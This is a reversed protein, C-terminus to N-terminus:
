KGKWDPLLGPIWPAGAEHMAEQLRRVDTDILTRLRALTGKFEESAIASTRHMFHVMEFHRM